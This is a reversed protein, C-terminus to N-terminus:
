EMWYSEQGIIFRRGDINPYTLANVHAQAVDRVDCLPFMIKIIGPLEGRLFKAIAEPSSNKQDVLTPGVTLCPHIVAIEVKHMLSIQDKSKLYERIVEEQKIKGIAYSDAGETPAFDLENYM